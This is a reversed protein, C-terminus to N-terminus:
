GWKWTRKMNIHRVNEIDDPDRSPQQMLLLSSLESVTSVTSEQNIKIM